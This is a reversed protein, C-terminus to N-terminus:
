LYRYEDVRDLRKVVDVVFEDSDTTDCSALILKMVRKYFYGSDDFFEDV